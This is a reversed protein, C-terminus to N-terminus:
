TRAFDPSCLCTNSRLFKDLALVTRAAAPTEENEAFGIVLDGRYRISPKVYIEDASIYVFKEHEQLAGVVEAVVQICENENGASGFKGLFSRITKDSPLVLLSRLAKYASRNRLYLNVSDSIMYPDYQKGSHGYSSHAILQNSLFAIRKNM